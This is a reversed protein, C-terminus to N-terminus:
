SLVNKSAHICKYYVLDISLIGLWSGLRALSTEKNIYLLKFFFGHKVQANKKLKPMKQMHINFINYPNVGQIVIDKKTM